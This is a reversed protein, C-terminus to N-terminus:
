DRGRRGSVRGGAGRGGGVFRPYARRSKAHMGTLAEGDLPTGGANRGSDLAQGGVKRVRRRCRRHHRAVSTEAARAPRLRRRNPRSGAEARRSRLTWRGLGEKGPSGHRRRRRLLMGDEMAVLEDHVLSYTHIMEVACAAPLALDALAPSGAREAVAEAAAMVLLPRLRKGGAMVSYRMADSVVLPALPPQPLWRDLGADVDRRRADLWTRLDPFRAVSM